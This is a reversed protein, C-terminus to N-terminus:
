NSRLWQELIISAAYADIEQSKLRKYGGKAFLISRAEKSSLREDILFVPLNFRCELQKAFDRAAHTTYQEKDDITTPLGVILATPLWQAIIKELTQWNPVGLNAHLITLPTATLTLKQGVAIGIRKYGFDFGLYVEKPM